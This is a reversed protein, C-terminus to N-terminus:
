RLAGVAFFVAFICLPGYFNNLNEIFFQEAASADVTCLEGNQSLGFAPFVAHPADDGAFGPSFLGSGHDVVLASFLLVLISRVVSDVSVCLFCAQFEDWFRGQVLASYMAVTSCLM